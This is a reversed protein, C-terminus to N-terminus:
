TKQAKYNQKENVKHAELNNRTHDKKEDADWDEDKPDDGVLDSLADFRFVPM